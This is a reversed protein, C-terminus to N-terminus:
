RNIANQTQKARNEFNQLRERSYSVWKLPVYIALFIFIIILLSQLLYAPKRQSLSLRFYRFSKFTGTFKGWLTGLAAQLKSWFSTKVLYRWDELYHAFLKNKASLKEFDGVRQLHFELTNRDKVLETGLSIRRQALELIKSHDAMAGFQEPSLNTDLASAFKNIYRAIENLLFANLKLNNNLRGERILVPVLHQEFFAADRKVPRLDRCYLYARNSQGDTDAESEFYTILVQVTLQRLDSSSIPAQKIKDLFYLDVEVAKDRQKRLAQFVAYIGHYTQLFAETEFASYNTEYVDLYNFLDEIYSKISEAM